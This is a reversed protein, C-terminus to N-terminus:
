EWFDLLGCISCLTYIDSYAISLCGCRPCSPPPVYEEHGDAYGRLYEDENSDPPFGSIAAFRGRIYEESM